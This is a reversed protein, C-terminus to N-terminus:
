CRFRWGSLESEYKSQFPSQPDRAMFWQMDAARLFQRASGCGQDPRPQALLHQARAQACPRRLRVATLAGYLHARSRCPRPLMM